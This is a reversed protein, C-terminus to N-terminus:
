RAGYPNQSQYPNYQAGTQPAGQQGALGGMIGSGMQYGSSIGNMMGGNSYGSGASAAPQYADQTVGPSPPGMFNGQQSSGIGTSAPAGSSGGFAGMAAAGAGAGLIGGIAGMRGAAQANSAQINAIDTGQQQGALVANNGMQNQTYQQQNSNNLNGLGSNIGYQNQNNASDVNYQNGQYNSLQQNLGAVQNQGQNYLQGYQGVAGQAAQNAQQGAQYMTNSQNMGATIGQTRLNQIYAQTNAMAQGAQSLNMGQIAALQGGTMPQGSQMAQGTAQSGMAQLMGVDALGQSNAAQGQQNYMNRVGTAVANNPDQAQGLTMAQSANNQAQTMLQQQAPLITNSYTQKADTAMGQTQSQLAKSQNDFSNTAATQGAEYNAAQGQQYGLNQQNSQNMQNILGSNSNYEQQQSQALDGAAAKGKPNTIGITSTIDNGWNGANSGLQSGAYGAIPGGVSAGASALGASAINGPNSLSSVLGGM